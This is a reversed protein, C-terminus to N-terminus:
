ERVFRDRTMRLSAVAPRPTSSGAGLWGFPERGDSLEEASRVVVDHFWADGNRKGVGRVGAVHHARQRLVLPGDAFSSAFGDDDVHLGGVGLDRLLYFGAVADGQWTTGGIDIGFFVSGRAVGLGGCGITQTVIGVFEEQLVGVVHALRDEADAVTQLREVDPAGTRELLM